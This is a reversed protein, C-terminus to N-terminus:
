RVPQALSQTRAGLQNIDIHIPEGPRSREYRRIPAAPALAKLKSLGLRQLVRSVTAPAVGVENAIQDGTWRQRRLAAIQEVVADPTPPCLRHPRSSRDILGATGEDQFRECGKSVTKVTVGLAAAVAKPAQRELLVRRVLEARAHPTLRANQHIDM